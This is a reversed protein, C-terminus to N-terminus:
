RTTFGTAPAQCADLLAVVDDRHNTEGDAIVVLCTEPRTGDWAGHEVIDSRMGVAQLLYRCGPDVDAQVFGKIRYVSRPLAAIAHELRALDFPVARRYVWSVFRHEHGHEHGHDIQSSQVAHIDADRDDDTSRGGILVEFPVDAFVAEVIRVGPLRQHVFTRVGDVRDRDALDIKNLIVLDSYGIQAYVLDSTAPDDVQDPLQEADVVAIIGDLRVLPRAEPAAFTRAIGMPEAVGSAELVIGDLEDDQRLVSRVAGMLDDRIECCVCGNALSVTGTEIGVILESDIDVAGFDNVLVALRLGHDEALLRNVLTTKGAGLFGTLVTVPTADAPSRDEPEDALLWDLDDSSAAM